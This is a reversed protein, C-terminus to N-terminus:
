HESLATYVYACGPEDELYVAFTKPHLKELLQSQIISSTAKSAVPTRLVTGSFFHVFVLIVHILIQCSFHSVIYM